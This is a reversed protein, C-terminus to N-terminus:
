ESRMGNVCEARALGDAHVGAKDGSQLVRVARPPPPLPPLLPQQHSRECVVVRVCARVCAAIVPPANFKIWGDVTVM